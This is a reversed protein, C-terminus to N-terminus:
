PQRPARAERSSTVSAKFCTSHLCSGHVCEVWGKVFGGLIHTCNRVAPFDGPVRCEIFRDVGGSLHILHLCLVFTLMYCYESTITARVLVMCPTNKYIQKSKNGRLLLPPAPTSTLISVALCKVKQAMCTLTTFLSISNSSYYHCLVNTVNIAQRSPLGGLLTNVM